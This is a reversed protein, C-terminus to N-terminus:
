RSAVSSASLVMVGGVVNLVGVTAVLLLYNQPRDAGAIVWRRRLAGLSKSQYWLTRIEGHPVPQADYFAPTEGRVELVSALTSFTSGTKLDANGPDITRVGDITFNYHYIEPEIPGITITWLGTADLQLPQSGLIFEGTLAVERAHPAVLRFTVRRDPSVIPSTVPRASASANTPAEQKAAGAASSIALVICGLILKWHDLAPRKM